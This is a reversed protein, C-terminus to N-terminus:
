RSAKCVSFPFTLGHNVDARDQPLWGRNRTWSTPKPLSPMVSALPNAILFLLCPIMEHKQRIYVDAARRDRPHPTPGSFRLVSKAYVARHSTTQTVESTLHSFFPIIEFFIFPPTNFLPCSASGQHQTCPPPQPSTRSSSLVILGWDKKMMPHAKLLLVRVKIIRQLILWSM